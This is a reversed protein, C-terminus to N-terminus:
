NAAKDFTFFVLTNQLEADPHSALLPIMANINEDPDFCCRHVKSFTEKGNLHKFCCQIFHDAGTRVPQIAPVNIRRLAVHYWIFCM